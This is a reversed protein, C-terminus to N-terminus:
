PLLTNINSLPKELPLDYFKEMLDELDGNWGNARYSDFLIKVERRHAKTAYGKEIRHELKDALLTYSFASLTERNTQVQDAIKQLKADKGDNRSILFTIFTFLANSGLVAIIITETLSTM